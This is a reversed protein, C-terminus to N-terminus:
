AWRRWSINAPRRRGARAPSKRSSRGPWSTCCTTTPTNNRFSTSLKVNRLRDIIEDTSFTTTPWWLLDGAGLGLGSRHVLLDRVTMTHTVYADAMQFAPLHKTVPDDWSLKGEDVLQALQAATFAKSNSAIEFLTKGTVPAPDGLKRVGFGKTAVVKGDKVIAIAMGPVDFTKLALNVDRELDFAPASAASAAVTGEPAALAPANIAAGAAFALMFLTALPKKLLM